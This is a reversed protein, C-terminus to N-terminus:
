YVKGKGLDGIPTSNNGNGNGDRDGEKKLDETSIVEGREAAEIGKKIKDIVYLEYM